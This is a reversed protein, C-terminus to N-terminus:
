GIVTCMLSTVDIGLGIDNWEIWLVAPSERKAEGNEECALFVFINKPVSLFMFSFPPPM